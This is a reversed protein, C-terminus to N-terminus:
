PDTLLQLLTRAVVRTAGRLDDLVLHEDARKANAELVTRPGAGYIAVAVGQAGYLRADTYLPSGGEAVPEGFVSEAHRRLAAVLAANGPLSRLPQALLLRRIDVRIGPSDAVARAILGRVEREVEDPVEEPIIRRDLRLTVREPVVNTNTGGEIRGVNLYPHTIGAIRSRRERLQANHAYLATLLRNAAQLADAGSAPYAAHAARGHLTVELQLCGSHATIM